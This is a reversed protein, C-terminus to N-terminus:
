FNNMGSKLFRERDETMAHATVGIVPLTKADFVKRIEQTAEFGDMIPMTGDMLVVDYSKNQCAEVAEQGNM